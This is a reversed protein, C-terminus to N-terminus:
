DHFPDNDCNDCYCDCNCNCNCESLRKRTQALEAKVKDEDSVYNGGRKPLSSSDEEILSPILKENKM